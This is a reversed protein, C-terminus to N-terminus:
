GEEGFTVCAVVIEEPLAMRRESRSAGPFGIPEFAPITPLLAGGALRQAKGVAQKVAKVGLKVEHRHLVRLAEVLEVGENPPVPSTAPQAAAAVKAAKAVKSEAALFADRTARAREANRLLMWLTNVEDQSMVDSEARSRLEALLDANSARTLASLAQGELKILLGANEDVLKDVQKGLEAAKDEAQKKEDTLQKVSREAEDIFEGLESEFDVPKVVPPMGPRTETTKIKFEYDIGEVAAAEVLKGRLQRELLDLEEAASLAEAFVAGADYGHLTCYRPDACHCTCGHGTAIEVEQLSYRSPVNPSPFSVFIPLPLTSM